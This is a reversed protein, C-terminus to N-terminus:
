NTSHALFYAIFYGSKKAQSTEKANHSQDSSEELKFM